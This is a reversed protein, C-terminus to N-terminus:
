EGCRLGQMKVGESKMGFSVGQVRVGVIWMIMMVLVMVVIMVLLVVMVVIVVVPTGREYSFAVGRPSDSGKSRPVGIHDGDGGDGGSGGDGSDDGDGGGRFGCHSLSSHTSCGTRKGIAAITTEM